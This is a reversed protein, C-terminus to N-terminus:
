NSVGVQKNMDTVYLLICCLHQNNLKCNVSTVGGWDMAQCAWLSSSWPILTKHGVHSYIKWEGGCESEVQFGGVSTQHTHYEVSLVCPPYFPLWSILGDSFEM